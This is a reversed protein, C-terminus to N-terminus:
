ITSITEAAFREANAIDLEILWIDGDSARRRDLYADIEASQHTTAPGVPQWRYRGQADLLREQLSTFVGRETCILLIAGAGPDGKALVTANGGANTVLRILSSVLMASTLRATM